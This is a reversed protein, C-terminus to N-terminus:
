YTCYLLLMNRPRIATDRLYKHGNREMWILRQARFTKKQLGYLFKNGM